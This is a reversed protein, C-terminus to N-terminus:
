AEAAQSHFPQRMEDCKMRRGAEQISYCKALSALTSAARHLPLLWKGAYSNRAKCWEIHMCIMSLDCAPLQELAVERTPEPLQIGIFVVVMRIISDIMMMTEEIRAELFWAKERQRETKYGGLYLSQM